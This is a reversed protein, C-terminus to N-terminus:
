VCAELLVHLLLRPPLGDRVRLPDVIEGELDVLEGEHERDLLEEADLRRRLGGPHAGQEALQRADVRMQDPEARTRELQPRDREEPVAEALAVGHEVEELEDGAHAHVRAVELGAPEGFVDRGAKEGLAPLECVHERRPDVLVLREEVPLRDPQLPCLADAEEGGLVRDREAM